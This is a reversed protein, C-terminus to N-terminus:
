KVILAICFFDDVSIELIPLTEMFYFFFVETLYQGAKDGSQPITTEVGYM